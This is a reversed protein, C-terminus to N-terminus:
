CDGVRIIDGVFGVSGVDIPKESSDLEVSTEVKPNSLDEVTAPGNSQALMTGFM